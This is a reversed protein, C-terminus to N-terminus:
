IYQDIGSVNWAVTMRWEQDVDLYWEDGDMIEKFLKVCNPAVDATYKPNLIMSAVFDAFLETSSRRYQSWDFEYGETIYAYNDSSGWDFYNGDDSDFGLIYDEPIEDLMGKKLNVLNIYDNYEESQRITEDSFDMKHDETEYPNVITRNEIIDIEYDGRVRASIKRLEEDINDARSYKNDQYLMFESVLQLDKMSGTGTYSGYDVAHGFEHAFTFEETPLQDSDVKGQRNDIDPLLKITDQVSKYRGIADDMEDYELDIDTKCDIRDYLESYKNKIYENPVNHYDSISDTTTLGSEILENYHKVGQTTISDNSEWYEEKEQQEDFVKYEGKGTQEIWNEEELDDLVRYVTARSTDDYDMLDSTEAIDQTM